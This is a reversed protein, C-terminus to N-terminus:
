DAKGSLERLSSRQQTWPECIAWRSNCSAASSRRGRWGAVAEQVKDIQNDEM